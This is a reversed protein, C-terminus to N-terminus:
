IFLSAPSDDDFIQYEVPEPFSTAGVEDPEIYQTYIFLTASGLLAIIILLTTIGDINFVPSRRAMSLNMFTIGTDINGNKHLKSNGNLNHTITDEPDLGLYEAYNKIFGRAMPTSPFVNLDNEEIAEIYRPKIKLDTNVQELSINKAERTERLLKGLDGM